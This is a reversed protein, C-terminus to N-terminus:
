KCPHRYAPRTFVMSVMSKLLTSLLTQIGYLELKQFPSLVLLHIILKLCIYRPIGPICIIAAATEHKKNVKFDGEKAV